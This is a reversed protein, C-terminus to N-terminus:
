PSSSWWPVGGEAVPGGLAVPVLVVTGQLPAVVTLRDGSMPAPAGTAGDVSPSVSDAHPLHQREDAVSRIAADRRQPTM